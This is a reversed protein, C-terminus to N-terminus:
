CFLDYSIANDTTRPMSTAPQLLDQIGPFGDNNCLVYPFGKSFSATVLLSQICTLVFRRHMILLPHLIHHESSSSPYGFVKLSTLLLMSGSFTLWDPLSTWQFTGSPLCDTIVFLSHALLRCFYVGHPFVGFSLQTSVRTISLRSSPLSPLVRNSMPPESGYCLIPMQLGSTVVNHKRFRDPATKLCKIRILAWLWPEDTPIGM